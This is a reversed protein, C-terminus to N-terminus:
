ARMEVRQEPTLKVFASPRLEVADRVNEGCPFSTSASSSVLAPPADPFELARRADATELRVEVEELFWDGGQEPAVWIAVPVGIDPADFACEDAGGREFRPYSYLSVPTSASAGRISERADDGAPLDPYRDLRHMFARGDEGILMIQVGADPASLGSGMKEGTYFTVRYRATGAGLARGSASSGTEDLSVLRDPVYFDRRARAVVTGPVARAARRPAAARATRPRRAAALRTTPARTLAASVLTAAM